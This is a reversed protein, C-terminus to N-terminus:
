KSTSITTKPLAPLGFPSVTYPLPIYQMKNVKEGVPFVPSRLTMLYQVENINVM